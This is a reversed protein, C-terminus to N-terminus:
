LVDFTTKWYRSSQSLGMSWIWVVSYKQCIYWFVSLETTVSLNHNKLKASLAFLAKRGQDAAHKQTQSFKGNYSRFQVYKITYIYLPIPLLNKCSLLVREKYFFIPSGNINRRYLDSNLICSHRLKTHIINLYRQGYAYLITFNVIHLVYGYDSLCNCFRTYPLVSRRCICLYSWTGRLLLCGRSVPWV